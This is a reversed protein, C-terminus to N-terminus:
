SNKQKVVWAAKTLQEEHTSVAGSEEKPKRKGNGNGESKKQTKEGMGKPGSVTERRGKGGNVM